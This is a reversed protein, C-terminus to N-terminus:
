PRVKMTDLVNCGASLCAPVCPWAIKVPYQINPLLASLGSNGEPKFVGSGPKYFVSNELLDVRPQLVAHCPFSAYVDGIIILLHGKFLRLISHPWRTERKLIGIIGALQYFVKFFAAVSPIKLLLRASCNSFTNQLCVFSVPQCLFFFLPQGPNDLFGFQPFTIHRLPTFSLLLYM